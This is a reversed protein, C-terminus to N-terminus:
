RFCLSILSHYFSYTRVLGLRISSSGMEEGEEDDEEEEEGEPNLQYVQGQRNVVLIRKLIGEGNYVWYRPQTRKANWTQEIRGKQKPLFVHIESILEQKTFKQNYFSSSFSTDTNTTHIHTNPCHLHRLLPEEAHISDWYDLTTTTSGTPPQANSSGSSSSQQPYRHYFDPCPTLQYLRAIALPLRVVAMTTTEASLATDTSDYTSHIAELPPVPPLTPTDLTVANTSITSSSTTISHTHHPSTTTTNKNRAITHNQLKAEYLLGPMDPSGKQQMLNVLAKLPGWPSLVACLDYLALMVLLTWATWDDFHALNWALIVATAVLYGQTIFDPVGHSYFIALIGVAAFNYLIFLFSLTDIPIYYIQAAVQVMSGGLLGLLSASSLIMYGTLLKMCRFKYLVVILFTMTAITVCIVLTNGVSKLLNTMAGTENDLKWVTYAQALEQAGNEITDSDNIYVSALSAMVMAITVPRAIAHYSSASYLLSALDM